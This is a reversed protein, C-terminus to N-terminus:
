LKEIVKLWARSWNELHFNAEVIKQQERGISKRNPYNEIMVRAMDEPDANCKLAPLDSLGGHRTTLACTGAAMSELAALSTGESYVTPVITMQATKFYSPMKQWFISGTFFVHETLDERRIIDLLQKYYDKDPFNGVLLLTTKPFERHFKGFAEVAVHVGKAWSANRPVMIIERDALTEVPPVDRFREIDVCNPIFWKGPAVEEFCRTAPAISIGMERLYNTDNSVVGRSRKFAFKAISKRIKHTLKKPPQEWEVCHSLIVTRPHYMVPPYYFPYHVILADAKRIAPYAFLLSLQYYWVAISRRKGLSGPFRKLGKVRENGVGTDIQFVKQKHGKSDFVKMLYDLYLEAGGRIPLYDTTIHVINM